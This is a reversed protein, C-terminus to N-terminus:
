PEEAHGPEVWVDDRVQPVYVWRGDVSMAWVWGPQQVLVMTTASAAGWTWPLARIM